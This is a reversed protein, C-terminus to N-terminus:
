NFLSDDFEGLNMMSDDNLVDDAGGSSGINGGYSDDNLFDDFDGNGLTPLEFNNNSTATIGNEVVATASSSFNMMYDDGTANAYTELGPLLSAFSASSDQHLVSQDNLAADFTGTSLNVDFSMSENGVEEGTPEAFMSDFNYDQDAAEQIAHGTVDISSENINNAETTALEDKEAKPDEETLSPQGLLVTPQAEIATVKDLPQAEESPPREINAVKNPAGDPIKPFTGGGTEASPKVAVDPIDASIAADGEEGDQVRVRKAPNEEM